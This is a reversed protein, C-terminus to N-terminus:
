KESNPKEAARGAPNALPPAGPPFPSLNHKQLVKLVGDLEELDETKTEKAVKAAPLANLVADITELKRGDGVAILLKTEKHFSITPASEQHFGGAGGGGGGGTTYGLM